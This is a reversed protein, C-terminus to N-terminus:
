FEKQLMVEGSIIIFFRDACDNEKYIVSNRQYTKIELNYALRM